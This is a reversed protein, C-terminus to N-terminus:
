NDVQHTCNEYSDFFHTVLKFVCLAFPFLHVGDGVHSANSNKTDDLVMARTIQELQDELVQSNENEENDKVSEVNSICTDKM